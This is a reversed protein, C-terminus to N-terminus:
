LSSFCNIHSKMLKRVADVAALEDYEPGTACVFKSVIHSLVVRGGVVELHATLEESSLMECVKNYRGQQM